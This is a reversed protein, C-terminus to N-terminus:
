ISRRGTAFRPPRKDLFASVGERFDASGYVRAYVDDVAIRDMGADIRRELEKFSWLSEPSCGRIKELTQEVVTELDAPEVIATVFGAQSATPADILESTMLMRATLRRGVLVYLRALAAASITNGVTRAIPSGFRADPTCYVIDSLAAFVLGGGVCVGQVVAIIPVRLALLATQVRAMAHEYEVGLAGSTVETLHNIDTGGAFQGAAGRLIVARLTPDAAAASCESQITEYMDMTLANRRGPNSVTLVLVDLERVAQVEATM